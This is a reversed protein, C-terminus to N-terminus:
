FQEHRPLEDTIKYWPAKSGVFIHFEKNKPHGPHADGDLTAVALWVRDPYGTITMYLPCGCVRCFWRDTDLSSRYSGIRAEGSGLRFAAAPIRAFSAFLAGHIRRCMSCHCHNVEVAPQHITYRLAGCQCGGTIPMTKGGM